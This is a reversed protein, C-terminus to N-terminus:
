LMKRSNHSVVQYGMKAWFGEAEKNTASYQIECYPVKLAKFTQEIYGVLINALGQKRLAPEVWVMQIVGHMEFPTFGNPQAQIAAIALGCPGKADEAMIVLCNNDEVLGALWTNLKGDIDNALPLEISEDLREHRMLESTWTVLLELDAMTAERFNFDTTM